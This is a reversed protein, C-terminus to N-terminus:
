EGQLWFKVLEKREKGKCGGRAAKKDGTDERLGEYDERKEKLCGKM